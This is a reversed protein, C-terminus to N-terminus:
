GWVERCIVDTCNANKVSTTTPIHIIHNGETGYIYRHKNYAVDSMPFLCM